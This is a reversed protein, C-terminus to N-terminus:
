LSNEKKRIFYTSCLGFRVSSKRNPGVFITLYYKSSQCDNIKVVIWNHGTQFFHSSKNSYILRSKLVWFQWLGSGFRLRGTRIRKRDRIGIALKFEEILIITSEIKNETAQRIRRHFRNHFLNFIQMYTLLQWM